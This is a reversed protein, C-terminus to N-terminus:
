KTVSAWSCDHRYYCFFNKEKVHSLKRMQLVSYYFGMVKEYFFFRLLFTIFYVIHQRVFVLCNMFTLQTRLTLHIYLYQESRPESKVVCFGSPQCVYFAFEGVFVLNRYNELMVERYLNRQSASFCKLEESSFNM